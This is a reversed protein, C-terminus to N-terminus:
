KHNYLPPIPSSDLPKSAQSLDDVIADVFLNNVEPSDIQQSASYQCAEIAKLTEVLDTKSLNKSIAGLSGYHHNTHLNVLTLLGKSVIKLDPSKLQQEAQEIREQQSISGIPKSIQMKNITSASKLKLYAFLTILWLALSIASILQWLHNSQSNNSQDSNSQNNSNTTQDSTATMTTPSGSLAPQQITKEGPLVQLSKAPLTAIEQRNTKTNWWTVKVEPLKLEGAKSPIIAFKEIRKGLIGQQTISKNKTPTDPYVQLGDLKPLEIQPLQSETLGLASLTLTWTIPEGVKFEVHSPWNETLNVQMAPRWPLSAMAPIPKVNLRIAETSVSVSRTPEYFFSRSNQNPDYVKATYVVPNIIIEGSQQPFLAYKLEHVQYRQNNITTQYSTTDGLQEVISNEVDFKSINESQAQISRHVKLTYIIQQQVYPEKQDVEATVFIAEKQKGLDVQSSAKQINIEIAEGQQNGLPIPPIIVRGPTLAKLQIKWSKSFSTKGNLIQTQSYQSKSVLELSDPLLSLDPTASTNKDSRVELMLTEGVKVNHRDITQTVQALSNATYILM